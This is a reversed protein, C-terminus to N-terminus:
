RLRIPVPVPVGEAVHNGTMTDVVVVGWTMGERWSNLLYERGAEVDFSVRVMSKSKMNGRLYGSDIVVTGPLLEYRDINGAGRNKGNIRLVVIDSDPVVAAVESSPRSPGEYQQTTACGLLSVGLLAAALYRKLSEIM